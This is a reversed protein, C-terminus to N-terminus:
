EVRFYYGDYSPPPFTSSDALFIDNRDSTVYDYDNLVSVDTFEGPAFDFELGAITLTTRMGPEADIYPSSGPGAVGSLAEESLM